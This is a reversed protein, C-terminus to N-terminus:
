RIKLQHCYLFTFKKHTRKYYETNHGKRTSVTSLNREKSKILIFKFFFHISFYNYYNKDEPFSLM